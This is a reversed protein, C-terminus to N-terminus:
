KVLDGEKAQARRYADFDVPADVGRVGINEHKFVTLITEIIIKIDGFFTINGVYEVDYAFKEEWNVANRGNVQALGSLGPRVSHRLDERATYYPLYQVALPRPGIVAMDGKLINWLEPLEDLSTARLIKGFKTLRIEDPLLNGEADTANSMSRFKCLEFIKRDKGPRKQHFIVPSGLKVRVLIATVLMVPSLVILAMLACCIDMPRKFFREYIGKKRQEM